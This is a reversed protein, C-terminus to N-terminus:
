QIDVILWNMREFWTINIMCCIDDRKKANCGHISYSYLNSGVNFWMTPIKTKSMSRPPVLFAQATYFASSIVKNWYYYSGKRHAQAANSRIKVIWLQNGNDKPSVSFCSVVHYFLCRERKFPTKNPDPWKSNLIRSGIRNLAALTLKLTALSLKLM